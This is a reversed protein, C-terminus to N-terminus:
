LFLLRLIQHLNTCEDAQGDSMLIYIQQKIETPWGTRLIDIMQYKLWIALTDTGIAQDDNGQVYLIHTQKHMYSHCLEILKPEHLM